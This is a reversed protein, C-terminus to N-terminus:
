VGRSIAVAVLGRFDTADDNRRFFRSDSGVVIKKKPSLLFLFIYIFLGYLTYQPYPPSMFSRRLNYLKDDIWMIYRANSIIYHRWLKNWAVTKLKVCSICRNQSNERLEVCLSNYVYICINRANKTLISFYFRCSTIGRVVTHTKIYSNYQTKRSRTRAM